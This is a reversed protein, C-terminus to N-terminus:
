KGRLLGTVGPESSEIRLGGDEGRLTVTISDPGPLTAIRTLAVTVTKPSLSNWGGTSADVIVGILGTLLLDLVIIGGRAHHGITTTGISYGEKTFTLTYDRKRQLNLTTPTTFEGGRPEATVHAGDPASTVPIDQRTGNLITGCGGLLAAVSM